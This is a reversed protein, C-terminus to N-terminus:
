PANRIWRATATGGLHDVATLLYLGEALHAVEITLQQRGALTESLVQRGTADTLVVRGDFPRRFTLQLLENGPNPFLSFSVSPLRGTGLGGCAGPTWSTVGGYYFATCENSYTISDCGCVPNWDTTCGMTSDIQMPNICEIVPGCSDQCSGMSDFILGDYNYGNSAITGCGFLPACGEPTNIYGLLTECDGFNAFPPIIQCGTATGCEGFIYSVVGGYYWAECHNGYTVSDCGCVPLWIAPCLTGPDIQAPNVCSVPPCEGPTWSTVGGYNVAVCDNSYTVGNCGCVPNWIMPCMTELNILSPDVCDQPAECVSQCESLTEFFNPAYNVGGVEYGCGSLSTCAGDVYAVGLAMDCPGFDIGALDTCTDPLQSAAHLSVFGAIVHLLTKKM